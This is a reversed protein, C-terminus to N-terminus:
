PLGKVVEARSSYNIMLLIARGLLIHVASDNFDNIWYNVHLCEPFPRPIPSVEFSISDDVRKIEESYEKEISTHYQDYATRQHQNTSSVSDVRLQVKKICNLM